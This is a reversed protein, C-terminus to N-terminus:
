MVLFPIRTGGKANHVQVQKSNNRRHLISHVKDMCVALAWLNMGPMLAWLNTGLEEKSVVKLFKMDFDIACRHTKFQKVLLELKIPM